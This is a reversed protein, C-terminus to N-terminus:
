DDMDDIPSFYDKIAQENPLDHKISSMLQEAWHLKKQFRAPIYPTMIETIGKIRNRIGLYEQFLQEESIGEKRVYCPDDLEELRLVMEELEKYEKEFPEM